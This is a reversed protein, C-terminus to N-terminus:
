RRSSSCAMANKPLCSGDGRRAGVQLGGEFVQQGLLCAPRPYGGGIGSRSGRSWTAPVRMLRLPLGRRQATLLRVPSRLGPRRGQRRGPLLVPGHLAPLRRPALRRRRRRGPHGPDREASDALLPGPAEAEFDFYFGRLSDRYEALDYTFFLIPRGTVAYDFMASSYDTVLIDSVLYLETIDPYATVNLAFGDRM